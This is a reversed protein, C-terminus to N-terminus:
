FPGDKSLDDDLDDKNAKLMAPDFDVGSTIKDKLWQPFKEFVAMDPKDLDFFSVPNELEPVAMGKMLRAVSAVKANGSATSAVTVMVPLGLLGKVYTGKRTAKGDPDAAQVLAYLGSKEHNSVTYEKSLWRPRDEENVIIRETPFEFTIFVKHAEKEEGQWEFKQVGLDVLQAIRCMYTGDEVRGNSSSKKKGVFGKSLGM